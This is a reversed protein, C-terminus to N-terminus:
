GGNVHMRRTVSSPNPIVEQTAGDQSHAVDSVILTILKKRRILLINNLATNTTTNQKEM